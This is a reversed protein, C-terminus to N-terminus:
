WRGAARGGITCAGPTTAFTPRSRRWPRLAGGLGLARGLPLHSGPAKGGALHELRFRSLPLNIAGPIHGGAFEHPERVDVVVCSKDRMAQVLEDHDIDRPPANPDPKAFFRSFM